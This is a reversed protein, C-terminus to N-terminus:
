KRSNKKSGKKSSKRSQQRSMTSKEKKYLKKMFEVDKGMVDHVKKTKDSTKVSTINRILNIRKLVPLTGYKKSARKLSNQRASSKKSTSYGLKSLHINPDPRPLLIVKPM